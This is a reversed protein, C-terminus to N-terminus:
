CEGGRANGEESESSGQACAKAKKAAGAVDVEGVIAEVPLCCHGELFEVHQIASPPVTMGPGDYQNKADLTM